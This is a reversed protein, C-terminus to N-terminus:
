SVTITVKGEAEESAVRIVTQFTSGSLPGVYTGTQSIVQVWTSEGQKLNVEDSYANAWYVTVGHADGKTATINFGMGKIIYYTGDTLNHEEVGYEPLVVGRISFYEAAPAKSQAPPTNFGYWVAAIVFVLVVLIVTAPLLLKNVKLRRNHRAM